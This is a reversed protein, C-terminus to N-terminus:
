NLFKQMYIQDYFTEGDSISEKEIGYNDFGVQEFLSIAEKCSAAVLLLSTVILLNM